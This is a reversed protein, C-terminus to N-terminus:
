SGEGGNTLKAQESLFKQAVVVYHVGRLIQKALAARANAERVSIKGARLERLDSALGDIMEDLHFRESIPAGGERM